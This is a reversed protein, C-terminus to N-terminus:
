DCSNEIPRFNRDPVTHVYGRIGRFPLTQKERTPHTSLCSVINPDETEENLTHTIATRFPM